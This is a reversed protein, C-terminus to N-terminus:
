LINCFKSAQKAPPTSKTNTKNNKLNKNNDQSGRRKTDKSTGNPINKQFFPERGNEHLQNLKNGPSNNLRIFISKNEDPKNISNITPDNLSKRFNNQNSNTNLNQKKFNKVLISNDDLEEDVNGNEFYDRKVNVSQRHISNRSIKNQHEITAKNNNIDLLDNIIHNEKKSKIQESNYENLMAKQILHFVIRYTGNISQKLEYSFKLNTFSKEKFIDSFQSNSSSSNKTILNNMYHSQPNAPTFINASNEVLEKSNLNEVYANPDKLNSYILFEKTIGINELYKLTYIEETKLEHKDKTPNLQYPEM